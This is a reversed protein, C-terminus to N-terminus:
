DEGRGKVALAARYLMEAVGGPLADGARRELSKPSQPTKKKPDEGASPGWPQDAEDAANLGHVPNPQQSM